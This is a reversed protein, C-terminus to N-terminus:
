RAQNPYITDLGVFQKVTSLIRKDADHFKKRKPQPAYGAIMYEYAFDRMKSKKYAIELYKKLFYKVLVM